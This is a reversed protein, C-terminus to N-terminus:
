RKNDLKLGPMIHTLLKRADSPDTNQLIPTNLDVIQNFCITSAYIQKKLRLSAPEDAKLNEIDFSWILWIKSKITVWERKLNRSYINLEHNIYDMEHDVYKGILEKQQEITLSTHDANSDNLPKSTTQVIQKNVIVFNANQTTQIDESDFEITFSHAAGKYLFQGRDKKKSFSIEFKEKVEGNQAMAPHAILLVSLLFSLMKMNCKSKILLLNCSNVEKKNIFLNFLHM